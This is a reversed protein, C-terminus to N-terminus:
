VINGDVYADDTSERYQGVLAWYAGWGIMGIAFLGVIAILLRKRKGNGNGNGNGNDNDNAIGDQTTDQATEAM